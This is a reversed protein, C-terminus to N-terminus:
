LYQELLQNCCGASGFVNLLQQMTVTEGTETAGTMPGDRVGGSVSAGIVRVHFLESAAKSAPAAPAAAPPTAPDQALLAATFWPFLLSLSLSPRRM